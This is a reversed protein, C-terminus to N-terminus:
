RSKAPERLWRRHAAAQERDGKKDYYEALAQHASQHAPDRSLAQELWYVGHQENGRLILLRGTEAYDDASATPSDVVEQLLKNSREVLNKYREYEKLTAAAEDGRGQLQLAPVLNHLAETDSPNSQLVARLRREAEAGRGELIDLKALEVLLMPDTPLHVVAAEMLRRAEETQGELHRCIGLRSMVVPDDPSQRYLLELHPQADSVKRDEILMEALRLRVSTLDPDLELARRYDVVAVRPKNLRELIWGRWHYAKSADPCLGIWRTLCSWALKYRLRHMYARALTQLILPSEPHGKEVADLLPEAVEDAEGTQARFLLFELQVAESAGGQLRLCRSLHAEATEHDGRLRATRAALLHVEPNRPWVTLCFDFRDQAEALRENKLALQAARWQYVAYRWLGVGSGAALALIVLLAFRPRRRAMAWVQRPIHLVTRLVRLM